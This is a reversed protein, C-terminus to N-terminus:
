GCPLRVKLAALALGLYCMIVSSHPNIKFARRFHHEAFEFKEQRLYIMGLGYWSIYHRMDLRLASQYCKEANEYDELAAYRCVLCPSSMGKEKRMYKAWFSPFLLASLDLSYLKLHWIMSMVAFPTLMHLDQIWSCLEVSIKQLLKMTRKCATATELLVGSYANWSFSHCHADYLFFFFPFFLFLFSAAYDLFHYSDM